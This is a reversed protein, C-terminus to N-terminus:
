AAEKEKVSRVRYNFARMLQTIRADIAKIQDKSAGGATLDRKQRRLQSVQREVHNAYRVLRAEPNSILYDGIPEGAKRRGKIEAEHENIERLNSYFASGQQAQGESSGYFRGILPIKYTPLEEGTIASTVTQEAKMAERGLGGAIQGILYDIQDPTPSFIGPKYNTGGSVWNLAQSVMKSFVSATDKARTHGPTPALKNFDERAIPKGTWDKNEALAAIPDIATPAITQLSLGANGIPNFAEVFVNVLSAIKKQPNRFGGLVFETPIRGLNPLIHLGLPMPLTLYKKDGIPLILSRERVFDPPENDDFGAAALLLAQMSGLMVGGAIIKRGAPGNLTEIMRATGQVSANFFAYLAGTQVGIQGKRNFNVTLNKAMSAARQNTMGNEKGVKYSALRVANEMANNYDSLWDFVARGFQKAKGETVKKIEREIAEARDKSTRFMDRYGTQGGERQFEEWLESWSSKPQEGQRAARADIYIGRLASITHKMVDSQKGRIETTSLNFLAGQTDRILNVVGFVPNYQTNISAFYRTIKASAGLVQGLDDLDLNKLAQAMRMAREDRENFEVGHQVIKGNKDLARSMVVNDRGQYSMDIVSVPQGTDVNIRSVVDPKALTWFDANPNLKALGYLATAVRNKEGRTIAKERQMAVNALIDVVTRSSGKARKTHPGRVSFGQGIGHGQEMEERHLPVYNQYAAEWAKVTDPSELEYGVLIQRTKANIADVRKALAEYARRKEPTLAELYARADATDMGSGGDPMEHNIRAIQQNREEAHRAHLYEEFEQMEVKRAAMETFLPRLEMDLFEAVAKASRGHFLEEQLYVDTADRLAGTANKIATVVRKSDIHKDQLVRIFTDLKGPEPADWSARNGIAERAQAVPTAQRQNTNLLGGSYNIQTPMELHLLPQVPTDLLRDTIRLLESLATEAREPLGLFKRIASVFRSWLTVGKYPVSELYDQMSRNTLGWAMMEDLNDLANHRQAVLQEVRHGTKYIDQGLAKSRDLIHQRVVDHVKQLDAIDRHLATNGPKSGVYVASQTVAHLLEHLVTEYSVGVLGKVDAGQVWIDTTKSEFARWTMGRMKGALQQHVEEGLHAVNFNFKMGAAELRRLQQAVRIAILKHDKNPAKRAIFLAAEIATKGEMGTQVEGAEQPSPDSTFAGSPDQFLAIGEAIVKERMAPTIDFGMVTAVSKNGAQGAAQQLSKADMMDVAIISADVRGGGLKKLVDNAVNPVIKDYFARMGEGGVKLDLGSFRGGNQKIAKEALDKGVTNALESDSRAVTDIVITGGQRAEVKWGESPRMKIVSVTSVQKSLDYRDAQQEGTTWAVRDFGNEAAYRIMRKLSLAVWAETKTVFPASPVKETGPKVLFQENRADLEALEEREAASLIDRRTELAGWREAEKESLPRVNTFGGRKGKQAWDSQLEEIFLARKGESDTRENFRVHALINPQDFHSSRFTPEEGYKYLKEGKMSTGIIKDKNEPLTLLLERYNGGGPLQYSAFKPQGATSGTEEDIGEWARNIREALAFDGNAEARDIAQQWENGVYNFESSGRLEVEEVKVGNQELYDVVQQKTVKGQQLDLWDNLGSWEIEDAKVGKTTLGKIYDKWARAPAANMGVQEVRRSLESYFVPASQPGETSAPRSENLLGAKRLEETQEDTVRNMEDRKAQEQRRSEEVQAREREIRQQRLKQRKEQTLAPAAESSAPETTALQRSAPSSIGASSENTEVGKPWYGWEHISDGNTFIDRARVIKSIIKYKGRLASEGHEKAYQRNITVWDGANISASKRKEETPLAQLRELEARTAEYWKSKNAFGSDEPVVGRAMYHALQKHLTDIRESSTAEHPVARYITVPRNPHGKLSNVISFTQADLRDEGTGYYRVQNASYVDDPYVAGAGTLDYAPAGGDPGPPRHLGGYEDVGSPEGAAAPTPSQAAASKDQAMAPINAREALDPYTALVNAPVPKGETLAKEIVQKHDVPERGMEGIAGQVGYNLHERAQIRAISAAAGSRKNNTDFTEAQFKNKETYWESRTMQWPERQNVEPAKQESLELTEARPVVTGGKPVAERETRLGAKARAAKDAQLGVEAEQMTTGIGFSIRLPLSVPKGDVISKGVIKKNFLRARARNLIRKAEQETKAQVVFEDGSVHYANQTEKALAEGIRRIAEDGKPHGLRDNIQKLGDADISAQVPLKESEEYALFNPLSTKRSTYAKRHLDDLVELREEQTMEPFLRRIDPFQRREQKSLDAAQTPAPTPQAVAQPPVQTVAPTQIAGTAAVSPIPPATEAPPVQRGEQQEAPKTRRALETQAAHRFGSMPHNQAAAELEAPTLAEVPKGFISVEPARGTVENQQGVVRQAQLVRSSEVAERGAQPQPQAQVPEQRIEVQGPLRQQNEQASRDETPQPSRRAIEAKVSERFASMPHNQQAAALEQDTLAAIPKGFVKVEAPQAAANEAPQVQRLDELRARYASQSEGIRRAGSLAPNQAALERNLLTRIEADRAERAAAPGAQDAENLGAIETQRAQQREQAQREMDAYGQERKAQEEARTIAAGVNPFPSPTEALDSEFAATEALATRIATDADPAKMIGDVARRSVATMGGGMMAGVALGGLGESLAGKTTPTSPIAEQMGINEGVRSLYSQPLEELVGEAAAGKAVRAALNGSLGKTFAKALVRDGMGGFIGTAVGALTMAKASADEALSSRAEEFSRGDVMLSKLAESDSLDAESLALIQDRVQRGTQGAQQLGETLGGAIQAATAAKAAAIQPAVKAAIQATYIGRAIGIAPFMTVATGPLSQMFGGLYARPDSWAEGPANKEDDWWTKALAETMQPSLAQQARAINGKILEESPKGHMWEDVSDVAGVFKEGFARRTIERADLALGQFGMSLTSKIDGWISPEDTKQPKTLSDWEQRVDPIEHERLTPAVFDDFYASRVQERGNQDLAHFADSASINDWRPIEM